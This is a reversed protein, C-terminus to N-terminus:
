PASYSQIRTRWSKKPYISGTYDTPKNVKLFELASRVRKGWHGRPRQNIYTDGTRTEMRRAICKGTDYTLYKETTYVFTYM